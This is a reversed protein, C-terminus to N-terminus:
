MLGPLCEGATDTVILNLAFPTTEPTVSDESCGAILLLALSLMLIKRM